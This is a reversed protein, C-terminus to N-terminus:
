DIVTPQIDGKAIDDWFLFEEMVLWHKLGLILKDGEKRYYLIGSITGEPPEALDYIHVETVKGILDKRNDEWFDYGEQLKKVANEMTRGQSLEGFRYIPIKAGGVTILEGLDFDFRLM